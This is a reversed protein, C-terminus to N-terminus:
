AIETRRYSNPDTVPQLRVMLTVFALHHSASSKCGCAQLPISFHMSIIKLLHSREHILTSHSKMTQTPIYM